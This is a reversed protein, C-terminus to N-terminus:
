RKLHTADSPPFIEVLSREIELSVSRHLVLVEIILRDRDGGDLILGEMGAFPGARISAAMGADLAANALAPERTIGVNLNTSRPLLPL